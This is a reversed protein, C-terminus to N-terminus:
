FHLRFFLNGPRHVPSVSIAFFPRAIAAKQWIARVRLCKLLGASRSAIMRNAQRHSVVVPSNADCVRM